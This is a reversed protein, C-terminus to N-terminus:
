RRVAFLIKTGKSCRFEISTERGYDRCRYDPPKRSHLLYAKAYSRATRCRIQDAKINYRKSRADVMGCDRPPVPAPAPPAAALTLTLASAFAVSASIVRLIQVGADLYM